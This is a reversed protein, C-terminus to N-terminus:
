TSRSRCAAGTGNIGTLLEYAEEPACNTIHDMDVSAGVIDAALGTLYEGKRTTPGLKRISMPDAKMLQYARPWAPINKGNHVLATGYTERVAFM